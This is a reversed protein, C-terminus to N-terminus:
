SMSRIMQTTPLADYLANSAFLKFVHEGMLLASSPQVVDLYQRLWNIAFKPTKVTEKDTPVVEWVVSSFIMYLFTKGFSNPLSIIWNNILSYLVEGM